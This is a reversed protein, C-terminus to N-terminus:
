LVYNRVKGNSREIECCYSEIKQGGNNTDNQRRCLWSWHIEAWIPPSHCQDAKCLWGYNTGRFLRTFRVFMVNLKLSSCLFKNASKLFVSRERKAALLKYSLSHLGCDHDENSKCLKWYSHTYACSQIIHTHKHSNKLWCVQCFFFCATKVDANIVVFYLCLLVHTMKDTLVILM